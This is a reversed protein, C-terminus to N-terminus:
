HHYHLGPPVPFNLAALEKLFYGKNGILIQNDIQKNKKYIPSITLEPTYNMVLNLIQKNGRFKELEAKLTKIIANVLNDLVQLGFASAIISRFFDESARYVSQQDDRGAPETDAALPSLVARNQRIIIPLNLSHADIYYDKIIDRIGKSIFQFINLYQDVSFQKLQLASTIFRMKSVLGETAVGELELAKIYLWLYKHINTLTSKTIFKLNLSRVMEEFLTTAYSELRFSLGVAEFKEEQYTGYM